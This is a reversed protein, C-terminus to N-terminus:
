VTLRIPETIIKFVKDEDVITRIYPRRFKRSLNAYIVKKPNPSEIIGADVMQKYM